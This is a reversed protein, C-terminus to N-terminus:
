KTGTSNRKVSNLEAGIQMKVLELKETLVLRKLETMKLTKIEECEPLITSSTITAKSSSSTDNKPMNDDYKFDPVRFYTVKQLISVFSFPM